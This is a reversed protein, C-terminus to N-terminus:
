LQKFSGEQIYGRIDKYKCAYVSIGNIIQKKTSTLITDGKKGTCLIKLDKDRINASNVLVANYREDIREVYQAYVWGRDTKYWGGKEELLSIVEGNKYTGVITANTSPTQRINLSPAAIVKGTAGTINLSTSNNTNSDNMIDLAIDKSYKSSSSMFGSVNDVKVRYWGDVTEYVNLETGTPLSKIVDYVQNPGKRINMNDILKIRKDISDELAVNRGNMMDQYLDQVKLKFEKWANIDSIYFAPCNKGTIDYHRYVDNITLHYKKLLYATLWATNEMVKSFNSDKNVCMEISITTYNPQLGNHFLKKGTATYSKAGVSWAVENDPIAQLIITDDVLYQTSAYTTTTEYYNRNARANARNGYNATYHIVIGKRITCKTMPRNRTSTLLDQTITTVM